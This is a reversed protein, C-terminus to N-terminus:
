FPCWCQGQPHHPLLLLPHPGVRGRTNPTGGETGGTSLCFGSRLCLVAHHNPAWTKFGSDPNMDWKWRMTARHCWAPKGLKETGRYPQLALIVVSFRSSCKMSELMGTKVNRLALHVKFDIAHWPNIPLIRWHYMMCPMDSSQHLRLNSSGCFNCLSVLVQCAM